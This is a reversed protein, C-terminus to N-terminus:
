GKLEFPKGARWSKVAKISTHLNAIRSASRQAKPKQLESSLEVQLRKSRAELLDLERRNLTM